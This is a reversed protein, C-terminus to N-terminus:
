SAKHPASHEDQGDDDSEAEGDESESGYEDNDAVKLVALPLTERFFDGEEGIWVCEIGDDSVVSVTMYPGGSKLSVVDGPQFSM